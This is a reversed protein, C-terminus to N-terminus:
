GNSYLYGMLRTSDFTAGAEPDFVVDDRFCYYLHRYKEMARRWASMEKEYAPTAKRIAKRHQLVFFPIGLAVIVSTIICGGSALLTEGAEFDPTILSVVFIALGNVALFLALLTSSLVGVWLLWGLGRPKDPKPPSSLQRALESSQKGTFPMSRTTSHWHGNRDRYSDEIVTTGDLHQIQSKVIASVRRVQDNRNCKPCKAFAELLTNESGQKLVHENGCHKCVYSPADPSVELEGGCTPCTLTIFDNMEGTVGEM